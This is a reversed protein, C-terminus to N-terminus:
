RNCDGQHTLRYALNNLYPRKFQFNNGDVGRFLNSNRAMKEGLVRLAKNLRIAQDSSRRAAAIAATQDSEAKRGCQPCAPATPLPQSWQQPALLTREAEELM